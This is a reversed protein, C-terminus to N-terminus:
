TTKAAMATKSTAPDVAAGTESILAEKEARTWTKLECERRFAQNRTRCAEVYVLEVPRRSSTYRAGRGSNHVVARAAPDLAYGTYLTGGACRVIYVFHLKKNRGRRVRQLSSRGDKTESGSQTEHNRSKAAL